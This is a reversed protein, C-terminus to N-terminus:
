NEIIERLYVARRCVHAMNSNHCKFGLYLWENDRALYVVTDATPTNTKELYLREIKAASQWVPDDLAGDLKPPQGCAPIEIPPLASVVSVIGCWGAIFAAMGFWLKSQMVLGALNKNSCLV